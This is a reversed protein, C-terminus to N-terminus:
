CSAESASRQSLVWDMLPIGGLVHIDMHTKAHGCIEGRMKQVNPGNVAIGLLIAATEPFCDGFAKTPICEVDTGKVVLKEFEADVPLAEIGDSLILKRTLFTHLFTALPSYEGYSM